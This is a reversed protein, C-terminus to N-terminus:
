KLPVFQLCCFLLMHTHSFLCLSILQYFATSYQVAHSYCLLSFFPLPPDHQLSLKEMEQGSGFRVKKKMVGSINHGQSNQKTKSVLVIPVPWFLCPNTISIHNRECIGDYRAHYSCFLPVWPAALHWQHVCHSMMQYRKRSLRVAVHFRITEYIIFFCITKKFPSTM